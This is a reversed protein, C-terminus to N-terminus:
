IRLLNDIEFLRIKTKAIDADYFKTGSQQKRRILEDLRLFLERKENILAERNSKM